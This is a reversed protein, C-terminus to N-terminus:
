QIGPIPQTTPVTEALEKSIEEIQEISTWLSQPRWGFTDAIHNNWGKIPKLAKNLPIAKEVNGKVAIASAHNKFFQRKAGADIKEFYESGLEPNLKGFLEKVKTYRFQLVNALVTEMEQISRIDLKIADELPLNFIGDPGLEEIQNLATGKQTKLTNILKHVIPHDTGYIDLSSDIELNKINFDKRAATTDYGNRDLADFILNFRNKHKAATDIKIVELPAKVKNVGSHKSGPPYVRIDPFQGETFKSGKDPKVNAMFDEVTGGTQQNWTDFQGLELDTLERPNYSTMGLADNITKSDLVGKTQDGIAAIRASRSSGTVSDLIDVMNEEFNGSKIGLVRERAQIIPSPSDPTVGQYSQHNTVVNNADDLGIAHHRNTIMKGQREYLSGSTYEKPGEFGSQMSSKAVRGKDGTLTVADDIMQSQINKTQQQKKAFNQEAKSRVRLAQDEVEFDRAAAELLSYAEDSGESANRFLADLPERVTPDFDIARTFIDADVKSIGGAGEKFMPQVTEPIVEGFIKRGLAQGTESMLKGQWGM